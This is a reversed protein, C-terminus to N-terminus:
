LYEYCYFGSIGLCRTDQDVRSLIRIQRLLETGSSNSLCNITYENLLHRAKALQIKAQMDGAIEKGGSEFRIFGKKDILVKHSIAM